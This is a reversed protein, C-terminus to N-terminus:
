AVCEVKNWIREKKILNASKPKRTAIYLPNATVWGVPFRLETNRTNM